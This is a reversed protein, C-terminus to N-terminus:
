YTAAVFINAKLASMDISGTQSIQKPKTTKQRCSAHGSKAFHIKAFFYAKLLASKNSIFPEGKCISWLLQLLPIDLVFDFCCLEHLLQMCRGTIDHPLDRLVHMCLGTLHMCQDTVDCSLAHV